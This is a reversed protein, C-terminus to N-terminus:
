KSAAMAGASAAASGMSEAGSTTGVSASASMSPASASTDTPPTSVNVDEKKSCGGLALQSALAVAFTLSLTTSRYM